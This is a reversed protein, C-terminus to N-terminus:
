SLDIRCPWVAVLTISSKLQVELQNLRGEGELFAQGWADDQPVTKESLTELMIRSSKLM